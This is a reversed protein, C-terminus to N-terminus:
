ILQRIAMPRIRTVWIRVGWVMTTPSLPGSCHVLPRSATASVFYAFITLVFPIILLSASIVCYETTKPKSRIPFLLVNFRWCSSGDHLINLASSNRWSLWSWLLNCCVFLSLTIMFHISIFPLITISVKMTASTILEFLINTYSFRLSEWKNCWSFNLFLSSEWFQFLWSRDCM